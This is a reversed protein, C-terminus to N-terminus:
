CVAGRNKDIYKQHYEEARYFTGAKEISTTIPRKFNKQAEVLSKQAIKKQEDDQAFIVSRYQVKKMAYTPDHNMWFYELLKEYSIVSPDFEIQITETHDGIDDYNPNPTKGGSYGVTTKIVGPIRSFTYEPGWFCGMGFSAINKM